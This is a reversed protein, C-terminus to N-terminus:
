AYCDIEYEKGDVYRHCKLHAKFVQPKIISTGLLMRVCEQVGETISPHPHILESLEAIGKNMSILLAAAQIASSSQEGVIRMGLLRMEADDTVLIKVFGRMSRMAIARNIYEYSLKAVRYPKGSQRATQENMGVGAVEPRLFMITSVNGYSISKGHNPNCITEVVHRGEVEGVNVLCIDATLDGVAFINPINTRGDKDAVINGGSDLEIGVEEIGIGKTNAIRGVSVLAKEVNYTQVSGDTYRLTYEVRSDKITMSELSATRHITVGNAELNETIIDSIDTDEFPLIRDAKDILRVDTAGFNSFITAFECGIVGAGLVVMSEPFEDLDHIGDSTMIIEEDIPIHPLKRPTSGTSLIIYDCSIRECTTPTNIEVVNPTIMKGFGKAFRFNDSRYYTQLMTIQDMLQRHRTDIAQRMSEMMEQFTFHMGDIKYGRDQFRLRRADRSLEWLTKSSLAGRFIGAGGVLDKEILLVKKGFDLARIAAAYGSPGGGIVCIDYHEFHSFPTHM